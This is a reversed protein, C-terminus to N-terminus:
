VCHQALISTWGLYITSDVDKQGQLKWFAVSFMGRTWWLRSEAQSPLPSLKFNGKEKLWAARTSSCMKSSQGWSASGCRAALVPWGLCRQWPPQQLLLLDSLRVCPQFIPLVGRTKGVSHSSLSPHLLCELLDGPTEQHQQPTRRSLRGTRCLQFATRAGGRWGPFVRLKWWGAGKINQLRKYNNEYTWSMLIVAKQFFVM